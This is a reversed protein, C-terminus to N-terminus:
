PTEGARRPVARGGRMSALLLTQHALTTALAIADEELVEARVGAQHLLDTLERYLVAKWQHKGAPTITHTIAWGPYTSELAHLQRVELGTPEPVSAADM